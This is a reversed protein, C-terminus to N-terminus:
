QVQATLRYYNRRILYFFLYFFVFFCFFECTVWVYDRCLHRRRSTHTGVLITYPTSAYLRFTIEVIRNQMFKFLPEVATEWWKRDTSKPATNLSPSIYMYICICLPFSAFNHNRGQPVSRSELRTCRANCVCACM